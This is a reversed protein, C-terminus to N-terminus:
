SAAFLGYLYHAHAADPHHSPDVNLQGIGRNNSIEFVEANGDFCIVGRDLKVHCTPCLCLVNDPSDPGDHPRGVPRIHAGEAYPGGPTEIRVGCIQCRYDYLEKIWQTVATNRVRRQVTAFRDEAGGRPPKGPPPDTIPNESPSKVLRFRWIEFGSRGLEKWYSEVYYLGDYRYGTSPSRDPNGGSGRVVRVPLGQTSSVALALNQRTLSQNATQAGSNPDNGGHGTYIVEEGLDVDDEYGGSIVISDAGESAGGSIGAQLPRHVGAAAVGGRTAFTAGEPVDPLRGFHRKAAPM